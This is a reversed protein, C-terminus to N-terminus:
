PTGIAMSLSATDAKQRSARHASKRRENRAVRRDQSKQEPTRLDPDWPATMMQDYKVAKRPLGLRHFQYLYGLLRRVEAKRQVIFSSFRTDRTPHQYRRVRWQVSLSECLGIMAGWDQEFTSAFSVRHEKPGYHGDGDFYGLWFASQYERPIRSVVQAHTLRSKDGYGISLLFRALRADCINIDTQPQRNFTAAKRHRHSVSVKCHRQLITLLHSADSQVLAISIHQDGVWGDAWLFGLIYAIEPNSVTQFAALNGNDKFASFTIGYRAAEKLVHPGCCGLERSLQKASKGASKAARIIEEPIPKSRPM